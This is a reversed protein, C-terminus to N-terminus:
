CILEKRKLANICNEVDKKSYKTIEFKGDIVKHDLNIQSVDKIMEFDYLLPLLEFIFNARKVNVQYAEALFDKIPHLCSIENDVKWYNIVHENIIQTQNVGAIGKELEIFIVGEKRKSIASYVDNIDIGKNPGVTTIDYLKGDTIISLHPPIRTARFIGIFTGNQLKELTIESTIKIPYKM